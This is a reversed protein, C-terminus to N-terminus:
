KGDYQNILLSGQFPKNYDGHLQTTYDGIDFLWGPKKENSVQGWPEVWWPDKLRRPVKRRMMLQVDKPCRLVHSGLAAMSLGMAKTMPMGRYRILIVRPKQSGFEFYYSKCPPGRIWNYNPNYCGWNGM